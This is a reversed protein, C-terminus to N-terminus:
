ASGPRERGNPRGGSSSSACTPRPAGRWSTPPPSTRIMRSIRVYPPTALVDDALLDVLEDDSYPFWSGERFDRSLRSSAVLVCPYLKVEDPAFRGDGVLREYDLRDSAPDAGPLNPM